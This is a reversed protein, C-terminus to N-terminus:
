ELILIEGKGDNAIDGAFRHARNQNIQAFKSPLQSFSKLMLNLFPLTHIGCDQITAHLSPRKTLILTGRRMGYGVYEGVNGLIGITGALMRSGCYSGVNGEILILGRRMQDGTREGADGKVIVTGGKMGKRDGVLAAGLYDGVNGNIQLLGGSMACATFDAANGNLLLEGKQMQFALFAGANGNVIIRGTKMGSGIYDVKATCKEFVLDQTDSGEILFIDDARLQQKGYWLLTASIQSINKDSLQDPTLPSVDLKQLLDKKLTFILASM